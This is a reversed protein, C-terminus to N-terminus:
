GENTERPFVRLTAASGLLVLVFMVVAIATARGIQFDKFLTSVMLTSLVHSESAPQQSTLLWILDFTNLGAIVIFVASIALVERIQPLTIFFFQRWPPAGDLTAAEYLQADIGEMAALYLILNFGCAMWIYIPIVAGYLHAQSLWAYNAFSQLWAGPGALGIGALWGGLTVLSANVLGSHPDYATMWLLTAAIGGLINPFLFCVRFMERGWVGRHILCAFLLSLPVVVLTPVIMLFLNNRLAFWFGDSEFLLWKFNFWGTWARAGVGDWRIFAGAFSAAGPVVVLAAFLLLAPGVFVAAVPWRLRGFGQDPLRGRAPKAGARGPGRRARWWGALLWLATAALVGLLTGAAWPHKMAVRTPNAEQARTAAAAAELKRGFQEPTIRGTMLQYRADDMAQNMGPPQLGQPPASFSGRSRAIMAVTDAMRASFADAPVGRVAVPSDIARAFVESRARSTLYRLFDVTLRVRRPDGGAFVFWNDSSSQLTTPDTIGDPFVPFNMAGLEFGDPFKGKMENVFWSGSVVMASRGELFALQAATHTMGQWGPVMYHTTLRQAVAAARIFRPDTRAGPALDNYARWGAPGVLNYYAANLFADGYQMYVGPIAMPAVGAAEMRDCLAFFEAWTRPVTWGHARFLAKNYFITWCSYVFPLGYVRGHLRWADLVGPQFTDRWRAGGDWDPGDLYPTLDTIRGDRILVSWPLEADTADPYSGEIVRIRVKDAIRPDGYLNVKVGPRLAEFQRATQEFFASGYGGVFIPIEIVTPPAAAAASLRAAATLGGLLACLFLRPRM